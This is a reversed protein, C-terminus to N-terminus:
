QFDIIQSPVDIFLMQHLYESGPSGDFVNLYRFSFPSCPYQLSAVGIHFELSVIFRDVCRFVHVHSLNISVCDADGEFVYRGTATGGARGGSTSVPATSASALASPIASTRRGAVGAVSSSTSLVFM